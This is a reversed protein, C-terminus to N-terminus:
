EGFVKRHAAKLEDPYITAYTRTANINAHGLMDQVVALNHTERLMRIAFAHRFSHPSFEGPAVGALQCVQHVITGVYGDSLRDATIVGNKRHRCFLPQHRSVAGRSAVYAQMLEGALPSFYVKRQKSGKGTVIASREEWDVQRLDIGVAEARRCGSSYLFEIIARDRLQPLQRAAARLKDDVDKEPIRPLGKRRRRVLDRASQTIRARDRNPLEWDGRVFLWEMFRRLGALRLEITSKAYRRRALDRHWSIINEASLTEGHLFDLLQAVTTTYARATHRPHNASMDAAFESLWNHNTM